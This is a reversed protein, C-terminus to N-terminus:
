SKKGELPAQWDIMMKLPDKGMDRIIQNRGKREEWRSEQWAPADVHAIYSPYGPWSNANLCQRWLNIAAEVRQDALAIAHPVMEVVSLAYPPTNEQIVHRFKYAKGSLSRIGRLYFAPQIDGRSDFLHNRTWSDPEASGGTTKYDWIICQEHPLWDVLARCWVDGERWVMTQEANGMESTFVGNCEPMADLQARAAEAMCKVDDWEAALIPIKGTEYASDREAKADKTRYSDADIVVVNSKGELLLAHAAHGLDFIRRKTEKRNPNLRPHNERAHAPSRELITAAISSSLSPECVPDAHYEEASIDYVGPATIKM